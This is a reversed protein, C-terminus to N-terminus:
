KNISQQCSHYDLFIEQGILITRSARVLIGEFYANNTVPRGIKNNKNNSGSVFNTDNCKHAGLLCANGKSGAHITYKYDIYLAYPSESGKELPLTKKRTGMYITIIQHKRFTHEAFCGLGAGQVTSERVSLLYKHGTSYRSLVNTGINRCKAYLRWKVNSKEHETVENDFTGVTSTIYTKEWSFSEDMITKVNRDIIYDSSQYADAVNTLLEHFPTGGEYQKRKNRTRSGRAM